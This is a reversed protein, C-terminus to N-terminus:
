RVEAVLAQLGFPGVKAEAGTLQVFGNEVLSDAVGRREAWNAVLVEDEALQAFAEPAEKETVTLVVPTLEEEDFMVLSHAEPFHELRGELDAGQRRSVGCLNHIVRSTM